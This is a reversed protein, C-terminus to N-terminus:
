INLLHNIFENQQHVLELENKINGNLYNQINKDLVFLVKSELDNLQM